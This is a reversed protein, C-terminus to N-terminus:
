GFAKQALKKMGAPVSKPTSSNIVAEPTGSITIFCIIKSSYYKKVAEGSATIEEFHVKAWDYWKRGQFYIMAKADFVPVTVRSQDHLRVENNMLPLHTVRYSSEM